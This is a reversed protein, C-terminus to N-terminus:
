VLSLCLLPEDMWKSGLGIWPQLSAPAWELQWQALPLTCNPCTALGGCPWVSLFSVFLWAGECELSSMIAILFVLETKWKTDNICGGLWQGFPRTWKLIVTDVASAPVRQRGTESEELEDLGEKIPHCLAKTTIRLAIRNATLHRKYPEWLVFLCSYLDM